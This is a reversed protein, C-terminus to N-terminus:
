RRLTLIANLYAVLLLDFHHWCGSGIQLLRGVGDHHWWALTVGAFAVKYLADLLEITDIRSKLLMNRKIIVDGMLIDIDSM